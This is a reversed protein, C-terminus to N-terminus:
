RACISPCLSIGSPRLSTTSDGWTDRSNGPISISIQFNPELARPDALANHLSERYSKLEEPTIRKTQSPVSDYENHHPMCLFAANSKEVNAPNRDIHALQGDKRALDADFGFCLACRRKCVVLVELEISRPFDRRGPGSDGAMQKGAEPKCCRRNM